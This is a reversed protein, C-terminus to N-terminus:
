EVSGEDAPVELPVELQIEAPIQAEPEVPADQWWTGTDDEVEASFRRGADEVGSPRPTRNVLALMLSLALFVAGLITTARTLINGSRSGFASGSGGSFIGGLSDGEENQVLVLLVLLIAVIVFLVMLFVNVVAM